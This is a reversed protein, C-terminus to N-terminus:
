HVSQRLNASDDRSNASDQFRTRNGNPECGRTFGLRVPSQMVGTASSAGAIAGGSDLIRIEGFRFVRRAFFQM